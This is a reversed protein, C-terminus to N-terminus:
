WYPPYFGQDKVKMLHGVLTQKSGTEGQKYPTRGNKLLKTKFESTDPAGIGQQACADAPAKKWTSCAM